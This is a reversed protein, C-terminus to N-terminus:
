FQSKGGWIVSFRLNVEIYYKLAVTQILKNVQAEFNSKHTSAKLAIM